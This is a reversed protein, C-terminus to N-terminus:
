SEGKWRVGKGEGGRKVNGGGLRCSWVWKCSRGMLEGEKREKGKIRTDEGLVAKWKRDRGGSKGGEREREM